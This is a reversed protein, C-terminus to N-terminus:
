QKYVYHKRTFKTLLRATKKLHKISGIPDRSDSFTIMPDRCTWMPYRVVEKFFGSDLFVQYYAKHNRIYNGVKCHRATCKV